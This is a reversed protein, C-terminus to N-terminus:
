ITFIFQSWQRYLDSNCGALVSQKELTVLSIDSGDIHSCSGGAEILLRYGAALDWLKESGHILVHSRGAALWAWELACTGINRQSKYPSTNVLHSKLTTALRKFDVFAVTNVLDDPPTPSSHKIGNVKLGDGKIASFLERRVPDYVIGFVSDENEILALSVSFLPMTAHFNTTGDIPDLCWFPKGSELISQQQEDSIEESLVPIDPFERQLSGTILRDMQLDADTVISGDSKLSAESTALNSIIATESSEIVLQEIKSFNISKLLNSPM